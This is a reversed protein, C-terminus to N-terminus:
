PIDVIHRLTRAFSLRHGKDAGLLTEKFHFLNPRASGHFGPLGIPAVFAM